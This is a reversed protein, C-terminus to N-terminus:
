LRLRRLLQECQADVAGHGLSAYYDDTSAALQALLEDLSRNGPLQWRRAASELRRMTEENADRWAEAQEAFGRYVGSARRECAARHQEMTYATMYADYTDRTVAAEEAPARAAALAALLAFALRPRTM